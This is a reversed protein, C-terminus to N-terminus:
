CAGVDSSPACRINLSSRFKMFVSTLLDKTFIDAYQSSTPVHLVHIEGLAVHECVLHLEIEVHKTRQYQVANTFLYVVSINDCYVITLAAFLTTFNGSFSTCGILKPSAMPWPAICMKMMPGPCQRSTSPLGPFSITWLSSMMLHPPNALTLTAQGIPSTRYLHLGLDQTGQLYRLIQKMAALHPDRLDHM